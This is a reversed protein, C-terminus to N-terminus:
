AIMNGWSVPEPTRMRLNARPTYLLPDVKGSGELPRDAETSRGGWLIVRAASGATVVVTWQCLDKGALGDLNLWGRSGREGSSTQRGIPGQRGRAFVDNM